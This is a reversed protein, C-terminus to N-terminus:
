TVIRAAHKSRFEDALSKFDKGHVDKSFVRSVVQGVHDRFKVTIQSKGSGADEGAEDAVDEPLPGKNTDAEAAEVGEDEVKKKKGM